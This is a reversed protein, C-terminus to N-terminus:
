ITEIVVTHTIGNAQNYAAREQMEPMAQLETWYQDKSAEDPFIFEQIGLQDTDGPSVPTWSILLTGVYRNIQNNIIAIKDPYAIGFKPVGAPSTVTATVKIPM